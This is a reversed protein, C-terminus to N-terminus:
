APKPRRGLRAAIQHDPALADPVGYDLVLEALCPGHFFCLCLGLNSPDATANNMLFSHRRHVIAGFRSACADHNHARCSPVKM